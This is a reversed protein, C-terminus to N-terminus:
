AALDGDKRTTFAVARRVLSREYASDYEDPLPKGDDGYRVRRSVIGGGFLGAAPPVPRRDDFDSDM